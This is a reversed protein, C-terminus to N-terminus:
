GEESEKNTEEHTQNYNEISYDQGVFNKNCERFFEGMSKQHHHGRQISKPM